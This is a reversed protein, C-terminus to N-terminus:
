SLSRKFLDEIAVRGADTLHRTGTASFGGAGPLTPEGRKWEDHNWSFWAGKDQDFVHVKRNFLKALEVGWGTGGRVTGNEQIWGIAFLEDTRTVLHFISHIVRRLGKGRAFRRGMAQFVFDMSVRGKDLVDDDLVEVNVSREMCHGTFSLTTESIGYKEAIEGFAAESGKHGGHVLHLDTSPHM